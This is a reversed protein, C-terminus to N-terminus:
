VPMGPLRDHNDQSHPLLHQSRDWTSTTGVAYEALFPYAAFSLLGHLLVAETKLM